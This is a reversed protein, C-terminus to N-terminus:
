RRLRWANSITEICGPQESPKCGNEPDDALRLVIEGRPGAVLKTHTGGPALYAYNAQAIEGDQAEKVRIASEGDLSVALPGTFMAPMHQVIILPGGLDGPLAPVLRSLAAPGGTSVGSLVIPSGARPRRVVAPEPSAPVTNGPPVEARVPRRSAGSLMARIDRRREYARVMPLLRDRLLAVQAAPPGGEPKTLFDFAGLELARVTM